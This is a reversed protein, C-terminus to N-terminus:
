GTPAGAGIGGGLQVSIGVQGNAAQINGLAVVGEKSVDRVGVVPHQDDVLLGALRAQRIVLRLVQATHLHGHGLRGRQDLVQLVGDRIETACGALDRQFPLVVRCRNEDCHM